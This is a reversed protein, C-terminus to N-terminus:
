SRRRRLRGKGLLSGMLGGMLAALGSTLTCTSILDNESFAGTVIRVAIICLGTLCGGKFGGGIKSCCVSGAFSGLFLAATGVSEVEGAGLKDGVVLSAGIAIIGLMVAATTIIGILVSKGMSAKKPKHDRKKPM